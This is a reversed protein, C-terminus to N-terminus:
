PNEFVLLAALAELDAGDPLYYTQQWDLSPRGMPNLRLTQEWVQIKTLGGPGQYWLELSPHVQSFTYNGTLRALKLEGLVQALAASDECRCSLVDEGDDWYVSRLEYDEMQGVPFLVEAGATPDYALSTYGCTMILAFMVAGAVLAGSTRRLPHVVNRLRYRLASASASLCTTFGRSDGATALLLGAYRRRTVDDAELLVTEDCSLEMDQASREMAMWMLPNFWCMATCFALFFKAASDERSIHVLEHRLVLRLEEQTYDREPVVVRITRSFLGVSLPTSAAPSIVLPFRAKHFGANLQEERWLTLWEPDEVPWADKLLTHRFVLHGIIKWGLVACFGVAWVAGVVAMPVPLSLVWRPEPLEMYTYVTYYLYNPLLWLAACTRASIRRRLLSLAPLLLAYYLSISLFIPFCISLLSRLTFAGGYSLLLLLAVFPLIIPLLVPISPIYRKQGKEPPTPDSDREGARYVSWALAGAIFISFLGRIFDELTM